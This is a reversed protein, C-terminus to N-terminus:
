RGHVVINLGDASAMAGGSRYHVTGVEYPFVHLGFIADPAPNELVGERIMLDAGGEEGQTSGEEAAQFIFKVTGQLQDRLEALVQAVGM